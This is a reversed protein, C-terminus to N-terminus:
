AQQKLDKTLPNKSCQPKAEADILFRDGEFVFCHPLYSYRGTLGLIAM